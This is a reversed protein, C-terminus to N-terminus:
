LFMIYATSIVFFIIMLPLPLVHVVGDVFTAITALTGISNYSILNLTGVRDIASLKCVLAM